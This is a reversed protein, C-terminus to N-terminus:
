RLDLEAVKIKLSDVKSSLTNLETKLKGLQTQAEDIFEVQSRPLKISGGQFSITIESYVNWSHHNTDMEYSHVPPLQAVGNNYDLLFATLSGGVRSSDYHLRIKM